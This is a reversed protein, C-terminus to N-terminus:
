PSDSKAQEKKDTPKAEPVFSEVEVMLVQITLEELRSRKADADAPKRTILVDLSRTRQGNLDHQLIDVWKGEAIDHTASVAKTGTGKALAGRYYTTARNIDDTAELEVYHVILPESVAATLNSPLDDPWRLHFEKTIQEGPRLTFPVPVSTTPASGKAKSDSSSNSEAGRATKKSGPDSEKASKSSGAKSQDTKATAQDKKDKAGSKDKKDKTGAADSDTAAAEHTEAVASLREDWHSVFKEMTDRWEYQAEAQKARDAAEEARKEAAASRKGTPSPTVSRHKGKPRDKYGLSKLVIVTGPDLWESGVVYAAQSPSAGMPKGGAKRAMAGFGGAGMGRGGLGPTGPAAGAPPAAPAPREIQGLDQPSKKLLYDHLRERATKLPISGLGTLVQESSRKETSLQAALAEVFESQWLERGVVAPDMPQSNLMKEVAELVTATPNIVAVNTAASPTSGPSKGLGPVGAGTGSPAGPPPAGAGGVGGFQGLLGALGAPPTAKTSAEGAIKLAQKVAAANQELILKRLTTRFEDSIGGSRLLVVQASFSAPSPKGLAAEIATRIEPTARDYLKALGLRLEPTGVRGALRVVDYRVTAAPYDTDGPRVKDDSESVLHLLFAVADPSPRMALAALASEAAQKSHGGFKLKGLVIQELTERAKDSQNLTLAQILGALAQTKSMIMAAPVVEEAPPAAGAPPKEQKKGRIRFQASAPSAVWVALFAGVFIMMALHRPVVGNLFSRSCFRM